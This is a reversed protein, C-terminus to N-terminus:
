LCVFAHQYRQCQSTSPDICCLAVATHILDHLVATSLTPPKCCSYASNDVCSRHISCRSGNRSASPPHKACTGPQHADPRRDLALGRAQVAVYTIYQKIYRAQKSVRTTAVWLCLLCGASIYAIAADRRTEVSGAHVCLLLSPQHLAPLVQATGAVRM